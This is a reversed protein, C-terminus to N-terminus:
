IYINYFYPYQNNNIFNIVYNNSGFYNKVFDVKLNLNNSAKNVFFFNFNNDNFFNFM